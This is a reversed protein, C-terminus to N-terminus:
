TNHTQLDGGLKSIVLLKTVVNSVHPYITVNGHPPFSLVQLYMEDVIAAQLVFCKTLVFM